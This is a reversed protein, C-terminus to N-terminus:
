LNRSDVRGFARPYIETCAQVEAVERYYLVYVRSEREGFSRVDKM